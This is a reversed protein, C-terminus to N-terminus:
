SAGAPSTTASALLGLGLTIGRRTLAAALHKRGRDLQSKLTIPSVGLRAAAEDRTLGQLYCLVLPERYRPPLRDLEEDLVAFAERGTMRDLDTVAEPVAARGERRARRDASVRANRSVKRATAYLWNAVSSQWGGNAAKGALIVFVAQCADEADADNRLARRCVGFVLGAHRRVLAAFAAQDGDGAFRQLLDRDNEEARNAARVVRGVVAAARAGM